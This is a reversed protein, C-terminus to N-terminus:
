NLPTDPPQAADLLHAEAANREIAATARRIADLASSDSPPLPSAFLARGRALGDALAHAMGAAIGEPAAAEPPAGAEEDGHKM